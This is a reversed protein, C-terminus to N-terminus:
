RPAPVHKPNALATDLFKNAARFTARVIFVNLLISILSASIVTTFLKEDAMGSSRAVQVVVFSLEGIQTLGSAVTIARCLPYRFLWVVTTWVIFKGVVILLPLLGLLSLSHALAQPDILTGLSVFFLAVFADRLPALQAQADHLDHFGSISLGALFAGLAVSHCRRSVKLLVRPIRM